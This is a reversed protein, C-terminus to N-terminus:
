VNYLVLNGDCMKKLLDEIKQNKGTSSFMCSTIVHKKQIYAIMEEEVYRGLARCSLCFLKLQKDCVVMAGVLGLDGYKDKVHVSYIQSFKSEEVMENPRYRKGNTMRNTRQSLEAIRWFESATAEDIIIENVIEKLYDSTTQSHEKISERSLDAKFNQTRVMNQEISDRNQVALFSLDQYITNPNFLISKVQPCFQEMQAIEVPSDDVFVISELYIHLVSAMKQMEEYKNNWSVGFYSIHEERLIMDKDTRFMNIVDVEDNKSLICLIFGKRFLYYILRQFDKYIRGEGVDGLIVNQESIVGGWLVNDCDLALCKYKVRERSAIIHMLDKIIEDYVAESYPSNWRVRNRENYAYNIGVRAIVKKMDIVYNEDFVASLQYDIYNLDNSCGTVNGEFYYANNNFDELTFYILCAPCKEKIRLVREKCIELIDNHNNRLVWAQFFKNTLEQYSM